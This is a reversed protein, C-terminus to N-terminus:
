RLLAMRKKVQQDGAKLRYFYVGSAVRRGQADRGDWVTENPGAAMVGHSLTRVLRGRVDYVSLDVLARTPLM